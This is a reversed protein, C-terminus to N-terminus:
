LPLKKHKLTPFSARTKYTFNSDIEAIVIGPRNDAKIGVISGWPDIIMSNGYTMRGNVHYGGQAAAVLYSLNEIARARLLTEWHAKGTMATFAAPFLILEAGQASLERFLEPFRLDYCIAVGVKGFPTECVSVKNGSTITDSETYKEKSGLIEVDFLHIKDYRMALQGESNFLLSSAYPKAKDASSIPVTGGLIWIGHKKALDSLFTQIPVDQSSTGSSADSITEQYRAIEKENAPMLAFNEPLVVLEAGATVAQAVLQGALSLNAPLSSGSTMQIAAIIAM